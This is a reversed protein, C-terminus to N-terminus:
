LRKALAIAHTFTKTKGQLNFVQTCIVYWGPRLQQNNEDLGNWTWSGKIGALENKVLRRVPRGSADFISISVVWGPEDFQYYITELDDIGDNDPSFIKPTLLIELQTDPPPHFQSNKYGPTGYGATSAASHWNSSSQSPGDPVLRELSIGETQGLLAFHWHDSYDVEDIIKGQANTLVVAGSDDPFSPLSSMELIRSADAVFYEKHLSSADTTLVMYEKPFIYFPSACLRQVSSVAGSVRNAIYLQSADVIKNSRNFLEIYDSAGPRPNFLIENIIIDLHLPDVSIGAKAKNNAAIENGRCDKVHTVTLTDTKNQLPSSLIVLVQSFLPALPIASSVTLSRSLLFNEPRSASFSDLPEDFVAILSLSDAAYTRVLQPPSSDDNIGNVPNTKGPSGGRSDTSPKWNKEGTCPNQTDMMELSWGGTKKVVDFWSASYNVAHINLGESSILSVIDGDNNLSPFGSVGMTKGYALFLNRNSTSTVILLSDAEISDAPFGASTTTGSRLRWGWLDITHDSTNKIEIYEAEPLGQPPSPDAMIEDILLNFRHPMYFYFGASAHGLVNGQQDSVEQLLLTSWGEPFHNRFLLHVLAANSPDVQASIPLSTDINYHLPNEASNKELTESFLVDLQSSSVVTLKKVSPPLTDPQWPQIQIMGLYHKAFFSSSSQHILIGFFSSSTYISDAISGEKTYQNGTGTPDDFLAFINNATRTVRIRLLNDSANTVGDLGDIIKVIGGPDKRFLSVEDLTNGIRVFYGTTGTLTLDSDSATLFVDVYNVSSPNFNLRVLFDWQTMLSLHNATSLYFISNTATNTSQLLGSATITFDHISGTWSPNSTFDGDSFDEQVQSFSCLHSVFLFSIIQLRLM